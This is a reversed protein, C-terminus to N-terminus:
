QLSAFTGVDGDEIKLLRIDAHQVSWQRAKHGRSLAAIHACHQDVAPNDIAVACEWSKGIRCATIASASFIPRVIM